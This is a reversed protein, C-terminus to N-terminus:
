FAFQFSHRLLKRVAGSYQWYVICIRIKVHRINSCTCFIIYFQLITHTCREIVLCVISLLNTNSMNACTFYLKFNALKLCHPYEYYELVLFLMSNLINQVTNVFNSVIELIFKCKDSTRSTRCEIKYNSKPNHDVNWV